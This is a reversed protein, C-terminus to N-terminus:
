DEHIASAGSIPAAPLVLDVTVFPRSESTIALAKGEPGIVWGAGEGARSSSLAFAHAFRAVNCGAALWHDIDSEPSSRPMLLLPVRQQVYEDVAEQVLLEAGFLFGALTHDLDIPVFDLEAGRYWIEEWSGERNELYAKAHVGRLGGEASWIFGEDYRENGFYMPRTAAIMTPAVESFRREWSDHAAVAAAWLDPDYHSSGALWPYFPMDPLLILDSREERAQDTLREWDHSLAAGEDHWQCVTIKM